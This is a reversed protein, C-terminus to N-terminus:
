QTGQMNAQQRALAIDPAEQQKLFDRYRAELMAQQQAQQMRGQDTLNQIDGLNGLQQLGGLSGMQQGANLAREQDAKHMGQAENYFKSLAQQQNQMIDGQLTRAAREALGAHLKSGHAGSRVFRGELEPMIGEKFTRTGEESIKNLVAQQYPNKYREFDFNSFPQSAQETLQKSRNLYPQYLHTQRGLEMSRLMDPTM